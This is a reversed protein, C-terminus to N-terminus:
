HPLFALITIQTYPIDDFIKINLHIEQENLFHRDKLKDRFCGADSFNCKAVLNGHYGTM